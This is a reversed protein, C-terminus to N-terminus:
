SADPAAPAATVPSSTLWDCNSGVALKNMQDAPVGPIAIPPATQAIASACLAAGVFFVSTVDRLM